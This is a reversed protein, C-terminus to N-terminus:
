GASLYDIRRIYNIATANPLLFSIGDFHERLDLPLLEVFRQIWQFPLESSSSFSTCDVVIHYQRQEDLASAITQSSPSLIFDSHIRSDGVKIIYCM